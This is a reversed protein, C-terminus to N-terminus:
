KWRFASWINCYGDTWVRRGQRPAVLEWQRNQRLKALDESRRAMVVWHSPEKGIDVEIPGFAIDDWGLCVLGAEGALDGLVPELDLGRNSIHFALLGHPALKALYLSLAERTLLHVPIADSGFADLVILGYQSAPAERLRLRGDGLKVQTNAACLSVYTFYNTNRALRVVTPDIEYLTWQEGPKAYCLLAGAGLGVSAVRPSAPKAHYQQFIQGAPGLRHYYALPERQRGPDIFQRGHLTNGHVLRRFAGTPDLTVRSVGFFDREALLTRGHLDPYFQGGLLIAGLGAAFPWRRDSLFMALIAPIGLALGSRAQSPLGELRSLTVALVATLTGLGLPALWDLWRRSPQPAPVEPWARLLCVFVIGVPYEAVLSFLKPALLANFMGGLVGGVSLWLYFETLHAPAPRDKALRTHCYLAAIFFFALHLIMLLGAPETAKSLLVFALVVAGLPLGREILRPAVPGRQGFAVIFTLLYLSLPIVWLLPVAAIDTSLYTTVGLMLSSPVFALALWRLRRKILIPGGSMVEPPSNGAGAVGAVGAPQVARGLLGPLIAVVFVLVLLVLAIAWCRSQQELDWGPEIVVPYSLLAALSGANSFGYLFYPDRRGAPGAAAYWRQFLPSTAALVFFPLGVVAGLTSLLWLEPSAATGVSGLAREGLSIPVCAVAVLLLALHLLAQRRTGLWRASLHAYAYGALLMAQFFVMCTNWVSPSGGLLPLLLKAAMPQALFLLWASLFVAFAFVGRM